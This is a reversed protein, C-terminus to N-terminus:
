LHSTLRRSPQKELVCILSGEALIAGTQLGTGIREVTGDYPASIVNEMKMVSLVVLQDGQRVRHVDNSDAPHVSASSSSQLAALAPHVEVIKGTMPAAVHRPDNPDALEVSGTSVTASTSRTLTFSISTSSSGSAFPSPFSSSITGSLVDPFANQAISTLTVTHKLTHQENRGDSSQPLSSVSNSPPSLTLHFLSGPQLIINNRGDQAADTLSEKPRQLGGLSLNQRPKIIEDGRDIIGGLERELWLTDIISQISLPM